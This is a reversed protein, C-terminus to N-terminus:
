FPPKSSTWVCLGETRSTSAKQQATQWAADPAQQHEADGRRATSNRLLPGPHSRARDQDPCSLVLDYRSHPTCADKNAFLSIVIIGGREHLQQQGLVPTAVREANARVSRRDPAGHLLTYGSRSRMDNAAVISSRYSALAGAPLAAIDVRLCCGRPKHSPTRKLANRKHMHTPAAANMGAATPRPEFSPTMSADDQALYRRSPAHTDGGVGGRLRACTHMCAYMHDHM